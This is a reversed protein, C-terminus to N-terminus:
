QYRLAPTYRACNDPRDSVIWSGAECWCHGSLPFLEVGIVLAAPLGAARALAWCCLAREKCAVGLPNGAAASCVADDIARATAEARHPALRGEVLPFHRAWAAVTGTWGCLRLSLRALTLLLAAQVKRSPLMAAVMKLLLAALGAALPTRAGRGAAQGRRRLVGRRELKALFRGVDAEARPLAVDYEAAVRRAAAAPGHRLAQQLMLAGVPPVAYFSDGMDLIRASGDGMWIVAADPALSYEAGNGAATPNGCLITPTAM